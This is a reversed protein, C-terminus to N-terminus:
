PLFGSDPYAAKHKTIYHQLMQQYAIALWGSILMDFYPELGSCAVIMGYYEFSGYYITDGEQLTAPALMQTIINSQQNRWAQKAKALAIAKYDHEWEGTNGMSFEDLIAEEFKGEWPKVKPNMMVVHLHKRKTYREM